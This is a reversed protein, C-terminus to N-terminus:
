DEKSTISVKHLPLPTIATEATPKRKRKKGTMQLHFTFQCYKGM